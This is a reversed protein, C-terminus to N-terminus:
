RQRISTVIEVAIKLTIKFLMSCAGVLIIAVGYSSVPDPQTAALLLGICVFLCANFDDSAHEDRAYRMIIYKFM